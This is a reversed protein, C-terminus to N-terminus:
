GGDGPPPLGDPRDPDAPVHWRVGAFRAFDRDFSVIGAGHEVALAALHADNTLNGAAGAGVLLDTVVDLHRATPEVVTAPPQGLWGRVVGAAAQPALPEPFASGLTALRLFGVLAVWAFGVSEAAGLARDLWARSDAHHASREDIAYLLVNTDVIQL